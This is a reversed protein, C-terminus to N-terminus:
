EGEEEPPEPQVNFGNVERAILRWNKALTRMNALEDALTDLRAAFKRTVVRMDDIADHLNKLKKNAEDMRYRKPL